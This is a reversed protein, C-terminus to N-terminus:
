ASALYTPAEAPLFPAFPPVQERSLRLELVGPRDSQLYDSLQAGL